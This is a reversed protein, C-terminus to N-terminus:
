DNSDEKRLVKKKIGQPENYVVLEHQARTCAVSPNFATDKSIIGKNYAWVVSDLDDDYSNNLDSYGISNIINRHKSRDNNTSNNNVSADYGNFAYLSKVVDIRSISADPSFKTASNVPIIGSNVAWKVESTYSDIDDIMYFVDTNISLSNTTYMSYFIPQVVKNLKLKGSNFSISGYEYTGGDTNTAKLGDVKYSGM